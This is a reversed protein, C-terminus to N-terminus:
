IERDGEWNVTEEKAESAEVDDVAVLELRALSDESSLLLLSAVTM